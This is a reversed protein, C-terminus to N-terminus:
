AVLPKILGIARQEWPLENTNADTSIGVLLEEM